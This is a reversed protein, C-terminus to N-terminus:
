QLHQNAFLRQSSLRQQDGFTGFRYQDHYHDARGRRHGSGYRHVAPQNGHIDVCCGAFHVCRPHHHHSLRIGPLCWRRVYYLCGGVMDDVMVLRYSRSDAIYIIGYPDASVAYPNIFQIPSGYVNSGLVTWNTGLMDDVRVIQNSFTDAVYIKGSADVWVSTDGGL